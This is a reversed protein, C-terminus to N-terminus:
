DYWQITGMDTVRGNDVKINEFFKQEIDDSFVMSVRYNGEKIGHITFTSVNEIAYSSAIIKNDHIINILVNHQAPLVKGTLSGTNENSFLNLVPKLIMQGTNGLRTVSRSADFDLKFYYSKGEAINFDVDMLIGTEASNSNLLTSTHGRMILSNNQGIKMQLQYIKGSPFDMDAIELERGGTFRLINYVGPEFGELKIWGSNEDTGTTKLSIEQIDINVAEYDAPSDILTLKLRSSDIINEEETCGYLTLLLVPIISSILFSPLVKKVQIM